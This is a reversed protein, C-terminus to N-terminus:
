EKELMKNLSILTELRGRNDAFQDFYFEYQAGVLLSEFDQPTYKEMSRKIFHVIDPCGKAWEIADQLNNACLELAKDKLFLELNTVKTMDNSNYIDLAYENLHSVIMKITEKIKDKNSM